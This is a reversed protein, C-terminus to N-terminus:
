LDEEKKNKEKKVLKRIQNERFTKQDHDFKCLIQFGEVGCFLRSVYTNWDVFGTHPDEVPEIHDRNIEKPSFLGGCVNCRYKGREVRANKMAEQMPPWKYSGRRLVQKLFPIISPKYGKKAAKSKKKPYLDPNLDRDEQEAADWDIRLKEKKTVAIANKLSQELSITPLSSETVVDQASTQKM